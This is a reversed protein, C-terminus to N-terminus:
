PSFNVANSESNEIIALHNLGLEVVDSYVEFVVFRSTFILLHTAIGVYDRYAGSRCDILANLHHFLYNLSM